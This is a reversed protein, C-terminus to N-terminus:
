ANVEITYSVALITMPAPYSQSITFTQRADWGGYVPVKYYNTDTQPVDEGIFLGPSVQPLNQGQFTIGLSNFYDIYVYDVHAPEYVSYGNGLLAVIPMPSVNVNCDLGLTIVSDGIVANGNTIKINGSAPVYFTNIPFGNAFVFVNQGALTMLGTVNGSADSSTIQQCDMYASFDLEELYIRNVTDILTQSVIPNTLTNSQQRQMRIWYLNQLDGFIPDTGSITQAKWNSAPTGWDMTGNQQMGNTTDSLTVFVQWEGTNTLFEFSIGVDQSAFTSFNFEIQSFPIENGILFYDKYTAFIAQNVGANINATINRFSTFSSDVNYAADLSGATFGPNIKRRVLVQAKNASCAVDVFSGTTTALTWARINEDKLTNLIAMTGDVNVVLLYRGDLDAPDFIDMWRPSRILQTSLISANAINYGTDPLEYSMTWITNGARDPYLIQNDIIVGNINASGETGQVNMFANSPLTPENLLISTSAPGKNGLMVLSKTSIIDTIFDNGTVGLEVGWSDSPNGESDDFNYYDKTASAFAFGPLAPSGGLVLRSQYFTGYGPFGRYLGAPAGGVVTGDGWAREALYSLPGIIANTTAFDNLVFGTAVTGANNVATIRFIGENGIYLGGVHNSTYVATSATVTTANTANPTFTVSPDTYPVNPTPLSSPDDSNTFDYTPYYVFTVPTITWNTPSIIRLQQPPVLPHLLIIRSYDKVWRIERINSSIYTGPLAGVSTKFVNNLYIDFAVNTLTDIRIIVTYIDDNPQEYLILRVQSPDTIFSVRNIMTQQYVTGFRRQVGGQPITLVNRLSRGAKRYGDYDVEAFFKPDLEGVTFKNVLYRYGM